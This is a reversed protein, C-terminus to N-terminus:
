DASRRLGGGVARQLIPLGPGPRWPPNCGSHPPTRSRAEERVDPGGDRPQERHQNGQVVATGTSDQFGCEQKGQQAGGTGVFGLLLLEGPIQRLRRGPASWSSVNNISAHRSGAPVTPLATSAVVASGIM